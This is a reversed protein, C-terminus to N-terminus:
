EDGHRDILDQMTLKGEDFLEWDAEPVDMEKFCDEFSDELWYDPTGDAYDPNEYFVTTTM